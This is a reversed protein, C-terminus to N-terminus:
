LLSFGGNEARVLLSKFRKPPLEKHRDLSLGAEGELPQVQINLVGSMGGTM